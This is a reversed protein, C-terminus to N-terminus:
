ALFGRFQNVIELRTFKTSKSKLAKIPKVGEHLRNRSRRWHSVRPSGLATGSTSAEITTATSFYGHQPEAPGCNRAHSAFMRHLRNVILRRYLQELQLSWCHIYQLTIVTLSAFSFNRTSSITIARWRAM